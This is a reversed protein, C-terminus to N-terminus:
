LKRTLQIYTKSIVNNRTIVWVVYFVTIEGLRRIHFSQAFACNECLKPRIAVSVRRFSHSEVFLLSHRESCLECKSSFSWLVWFRLDRKNSVTKWCNLALMKCTFPSCFPRVIAFTRSITARTKITIATESFSM